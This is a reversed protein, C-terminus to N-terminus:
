ECWHGRTGMLELRQLAWHGFTEECLEADAEAPWEPLSTDPAQGDKPRVWKAWAVISEDGKERTGSEGGGERGDSSCEDQEWGNMSTGKTGPSCVTKAGRNTSNAVSTNIVKLFVADPDKLEDYVM